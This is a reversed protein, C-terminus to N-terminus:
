ARRLRRGAAAVGLGGVFLLTARAARALPDPVPPPIWELGAPGMAAPEAVYRGRSPPALRAAFRQLAGAVRDGAVPLGHGAGIVRPALAALARVSAM